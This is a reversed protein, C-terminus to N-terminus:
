ADIVILPNQQLTKITLLSPPHRMRRKHVRPTRHTPPLPLTNLNPSQQKSSFYSVYKYKGEHLHTYRMSPRAHTLAVSERLSRCPSCSKCHFSTELVLPKLLVLLALDKTGLRDYHTLFHLDM